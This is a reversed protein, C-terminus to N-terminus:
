AHGAGRARETTRDSRLLRLKNFNLNESKGTWSSISKREQADVCQMDSLGRVVEKHSLNNLVISM